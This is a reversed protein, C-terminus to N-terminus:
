KLPPARRRRVAASNGGIAIYMLGRETSDRMCIFLRSLSSLADRMMLCHWGPNCFLANSFISRLFILFNWNKLVFDNSPQLLKLAMKQHPLRNLLDIPFKTLYGSM